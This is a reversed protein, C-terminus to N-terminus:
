SWWRRCVRGCKELEGAGFHHASLVLTGMILGLSTVILPQVLSMGMALYGLELAAHHGVMVTDVLVILIVGSRALVIAPALRLTESVHRSVRGPLKLPVAKKAKETMESM